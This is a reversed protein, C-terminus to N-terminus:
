TRQTASILFMHWQIQRQQSIPFREFEKGWASRLSQDKLYRCGLYRPNYIHAVTGLKDDSTIVTYCQIM